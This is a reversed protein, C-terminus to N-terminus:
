LNELDEKEYIRIPTGSPSTKVFIKGDLSWASIVLGDKRKDNAKRLLDRRYTTLNENIFIRGQGAAVRTATSANPFVDPLRINKLKTRAKYLKSKAKHNQFKVLITGAGKRKITHSINIDGPSLPVDQPEALQLVAEETSSYASDPIGCIELSQKRTYQELKDQLTYLEALEEEQEDIRKRAVSLDAELAANEKEVKIILSKLSDLEVKQEQITNRLGAMENALKNNERVINSLEIKIDVLMEKLELRTPEEAETIIMTEEDVSESEESAMNSRKCTQEEEVSGREGRKHKGGLKLKGGPM